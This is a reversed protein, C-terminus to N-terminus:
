YLHLKLATCLSCKYAFGAGLLSFLSKRAKDLRLDVNKVIQQRGTVVRGLHEDESVVYVKNGDMVWPCIEQFYTQDIEPGSITVRTQQVM